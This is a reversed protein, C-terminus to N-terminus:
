FLGLVLLVPTNRSQSPKLLPSIGPLILPYSRLYPTFGQRYVGGSGEYIRVADLTRGIQVRKQSFRAPRPTELLVPVAVPLVDRPVATRRYPSCKQLFTHVSTCRKIGLRATRDGAETKVVFKMRQKMRLYPRKLNLVQTWAVGLRTEQLERCRLSGRSM